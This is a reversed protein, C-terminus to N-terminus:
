LKLNAYGTLYGIQLLERATWNREADAFRDYDSLSLHMMRANLQRFREDIRDIEDAMKRLNKATGREHEDLGGAAVKHVVFHSRPTALRVDCHSLLNFAMSDAEGDVICVLHVTASREKELLDIIRLGSSVSGGFSDILVIRDGPLTRTARLQIQVERVTSDDIVGAITVIKASGSSVFSLPSSVEIGFASQVALLVAVIPWASWKGGLHKM